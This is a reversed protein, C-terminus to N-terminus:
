FDQDAFDLGLRQVPELPQNFYSLVQAYVSLLHDYDYDKPDAVRDPMFPDRVGNAMVLLESVTGQWDVRIDGEEFWDSIEGGCLDDFTGYCSCHSYHCIIASGPDRNASGPDQIGHDQEVSGLEQTVSDPDQNVSGQEISGTWVLVVYGSEQYDQDDHQAIIHNLFWERTVHM